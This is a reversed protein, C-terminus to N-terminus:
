MEEAAAPNAQSSHARCFTEARERKETNRGRKGGSKSEERGISGGGESEMESVEDEWEEGDRGKRQPVISTIQERGRGGRGGGKMGGGSSSSYKLARRHTHTELMNSIDLCLPVTPYRVGGGREREREREREMERRWDKRERVRCRFFRSDKGRPERLFLSTGASLPLEVASCRAFVSQLTLRSSSSSSSSAQSVREVQHQPPPLTPRPSRTVCLGQHCTAVPPWPHPHTHMNGGM